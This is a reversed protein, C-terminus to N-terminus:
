IGGPGGKEFPPIGSAGSYRIALGRCYADKHYWTLGQRSLGGPECRVAIVAEAQAKAAERQLQKRAEAMDKKGAGVPTLVEYPRTPTAEILPPLDEASEGGFAPALGWLFLVPVLLLKSFAM